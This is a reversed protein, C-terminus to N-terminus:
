VDYSTVDSASFIQYAHFWDGTISIGTNAGNHVEITYLGDGQHEVTDKAFVSITSSMLMAALMTISLARKMIKKM